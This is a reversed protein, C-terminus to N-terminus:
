LSRRKEEEKYCILTDGVQIKLSGDFVVGCENGKDSKMPMKKTASSIAWPVTDLFKM